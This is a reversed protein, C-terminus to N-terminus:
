KTPSFAGFGVRLVAGRTRMPPPANEWTASRLELPVDGMRVRWDGLDRAVRYGVELFLYGGAAPTWRLVSSAEGSWTRGGFAYVSDSAYHRLGSTVKGDGAIVAREADVLADVGGVALSAGMAFRSARITHTRAVRLGYEWGSWAATNSYGVEGAIGTAREVLRFVATSAPSAAQAFHVRWRQTSASGGPSAPLDLVSAGEASRMPVAALGIEIAFLDLLSARGADASRADVSSSVVASQAALPAAAAVVILFSTVRM